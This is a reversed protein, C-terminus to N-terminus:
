PVSLPRRGDCSCHSNSIVSRFLSPANTSSQNAKASVVIGLFEPSKSETEFNTGTLFAGALLNEAHSVNEAASLYNWLYSSTTHCFVSLILSANDIAVCIQCSPIIHIILLSLIANQVCSSCVRSSIKAPDGMGNCDWHLCKCLLGMGIYPWRQGCSWLSQEYNFVSQLLLFPSVAILLRCPVHLTSNSGPASYDAEPTDSVARVSYTWESPAMGCPGFKNKRIIPVHKWECEWLEM